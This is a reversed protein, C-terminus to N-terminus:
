RLQPVQVRPLTNKKAENAIQIPNNGGMRIQEAIAANMHENAGQGTRASKFARTQPSLMPNYDGLGLQTSSGETRIMAQRVDRRVDKQRMEEEHLYNYFLRGSQAIDKYVEGVFITYADYPATGRDLAESLNSINKALGDQLVTQLPFDFGRMMDGEHVNSMSALIDSMIGGTGSLQMLHVLTEVKDGASSMEPAEVSLNIEETLGSRQNAKNNMLESLQHIVEGGLVSGVTYGM